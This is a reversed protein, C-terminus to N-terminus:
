AESRTDMLQYLDGVVTRGSQIVARVDHIDGIQVLPDSGLVVLDAQAGPRVTGISDGLGMAQAAVSTCSKIAEMPSMGGRVMLDACYDIHGFSFDAPGADTGAIIRPGLGLWLMRAFSDLMAEIEVQTTDLRLREDETLRRHASAATLRVISHQGYAPLTPSVYCRSQAVMEATRQDFAIKGDTRLFEAHEICDLDGEVARRMSAIARCHATTLLGHSRAAAVLARLEDTSYTAARPDTGATDGGSAMVKIHDVGSAALTHVADRVEDVGDAEIGCFHFHGRPKTIVPGSVLLRPGALEGSAVADRVAVGLRGRSGNDRVTTVGRELHVRLNLAATRFMAEDPEAAMEEYPRGDAPLTVHTHGDIFGPTVVYQSLDVVEDDPRPRVAAWHAVTTILSREIRVGVDRLPEDAHGDVLTGVRLLLPRRVDSGPGAPPL